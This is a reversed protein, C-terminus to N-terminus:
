KKEVPTKYIGPTPTRPLDSFNAPQSGVITAHYPSPQSRPGLNNYRFGRPATRKGAVLHPLLKAATGSAVYVRRLDWPREQLYAKWSGLESQAQILGKLMGVDTLMTTDEIPGVIIGGVLRDGDWVLKRYVPRGANWVTTTDADENWRGFSACHLEAVDLINMVLSGAYERAQGAMNAGAVRGQDVATTQIAHIANPGGLLDPGQAVDGAAYIGPVNTQMRGNVVIGRDIEIASGQLFDINPRIGTSLVVANASIEHGDSLSVTKMRAGGIATVNCGTFVDVGRDRLWAEAAEAARRDLMRPLIHSAVEVVSLKWGLKHLANLIILGIFGAGVLVVSPRKGKASAMLANADDLTWLNHVHKGDVGPLRPQQPSSGTAILLNDYAVAEGGDLEVKRAQADIRVARRGSIRKVQLRNFYDDSGTDLQAQPIERALFYPLAMRAYAGEDSILTIPSAMDYHRITEIANIGAPGAGIIVNNAM